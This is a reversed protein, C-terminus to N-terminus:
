AGSSAIGVPGRFEDVDMRVPLRQVNAIADDAGAVAIARIGLVVGRGTLAVLDADIEPCGAEDHEGAV